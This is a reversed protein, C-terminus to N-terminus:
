NLTNRKRIWNLIRNYATAELWFLVLAIILYVGALVTQLRYPISLISIGLANALFFVLIVDLIYIITWLIISPINKTQEPFWERLWKGTHPPANKM